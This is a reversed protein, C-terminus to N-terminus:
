RAPRGRKLRVGESVQALFESNTPRDGVTSAQRGLLRRYNESGGRDWTISIAHRIAREVCSATTDFQNAIEPYLVRTLSSFLEPRDIVAVLAKRIFKYGSLHAPVGIEMLIGTVLRELDEVGDLALLVAASQRQPGERHVAAAIQRTLFAMDLPKVMYYAVGLEMARTIFDDRSLATTAIIAPRQSAPVQQLKELLGFGDLRPMVMDLLLVHPHLQNIMELAEMGDTAAGIIQIGDRGDLEDTLLSRQLANDEAILVRITEMTM